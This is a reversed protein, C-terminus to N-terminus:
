PVKFAYRPKDASFKAQIFEPKRPRPRCRQGLDVVEKQEEFDSRKLIIWKLAEHLINMVIALMDTASGEYKHFARMLTAM